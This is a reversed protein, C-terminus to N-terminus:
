KMLSLSDIVSTDFTVCWLTKASVGGNVLVWWCCNEFVCVRNKHSKKGSAASAMCSHPTEMCGGSGRFILHNQVTKLAQM